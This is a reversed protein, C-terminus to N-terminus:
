SNKYLMTFSPNLSIEIRTFIYRFGGFTVVEEYFADPITGVVPTHNDYVTKVSQSQPYKTVNFVNDSAGVPFPVELDQGNSIPFTGLYTINDVGSLLESVHNVSGYWYYGIIATGASVTLVAQTTTATGCDNTAICRYNGANGSVLGTITYAASTAGSINASNFQWQYTLNTGTFVSVFTVNGGESATQTTPNTTVVPAVCASGNYISDAVDKFKGILSYLYDGTQILSNDTPSNAYKWEVLKRTIYLIREYKPAIPGNGFVRNKSNYNAWLYGAIKAEAIIDSITLPLAM